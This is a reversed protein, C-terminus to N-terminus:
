VYICGGRVYVTDRYGHIVRYRFIYMRGKYVSYGQIVRYIFIYMRGKCVGHIEEQIVRDRYM